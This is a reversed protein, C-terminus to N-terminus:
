ETVKIITTVIKNAANNQEVTISNNESAASWIKAFNKM